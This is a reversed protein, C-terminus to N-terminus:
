WYAGDEAPVLMVMFGVCFLKTLVVANSVQFSRKRRNKRPATM